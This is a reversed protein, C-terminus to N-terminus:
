REMHGDQTPLETEVYGYHDYDNQEKNPCRGIVAFIKYKTDETDLLPFAEDLKSMDVDQNQALENKLIRNERLQTIHKNVTEYSDTAVYRKM